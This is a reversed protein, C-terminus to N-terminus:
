AEHNRTFGIMFFELFSLGIILFVANLLNFLGNSALILSIVVLASIIFSQRFADRVARFAVTQKLIVFRVFFGLVAATGIISLALSAYFLLFGLAGTEQPNVLIVTAGFASWCLITASLMTIIYSKVGM